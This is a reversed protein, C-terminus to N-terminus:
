RWGTGRSSSSAVRSRCPHGSALAVSPAAGPRSRRSFRASEGGSARPTARRGYGTAQREPYTRHVPVTEGSPSQSWTRFRQTRLCSPTYAGSSTSPGGAARTGAARRSPPDRRACAAPADLVIRGHPLERVRSTASFFCGRGPVVPSRGCRAPGRVAPRALGVGVGEDGTPFVTTWLPMMSFERELRRSGLPSPNPERAVGVRLDDRVEDVLRHLAADLAEGLGHAHESLRTRPAYAIQPDHAPVEGRLDDTDDRLSEIAARDGPDHWPSTAAFVDRRERGSSLM